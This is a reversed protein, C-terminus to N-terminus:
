AVWWCALVLAMAAAALTWELPPAFARPRALGMALGLVAGALLGFLHGLVDAGPATGLM